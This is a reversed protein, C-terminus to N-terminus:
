TESMNDLSENTMSDVNENSSLKDVKAGTADNNCLLALLVLHLIIQVNNQQQQKDQNKEKSTTEKRKLEFSISQPLRSNTEGPVPTELDRLM